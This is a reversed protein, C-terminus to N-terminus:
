SQRGTREVSGKWFDHQPLYEPLLATSKHIWPLAQSGLWVKLQRDTYQLEVPFYM